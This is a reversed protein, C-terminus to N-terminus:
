ENLEVKIVEWDPTEIITGEESDFHYAKLEAAEKNQADVYFEQVHTVKMTVIYPKLKSM